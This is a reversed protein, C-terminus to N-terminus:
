GNRGRYGSGPRSTRGLDHHNGWALDRSKTSALEEVLPAQVQIAIWNEPEVTVHHAVFKLKSEELRPPESERWPTPLTAVDIQSPATGKTVHLFMTAYDIKWGAINWSRFAFLALGPLPMEQGATIVGSGSSHRDAIAELM